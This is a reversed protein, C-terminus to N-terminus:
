HARPPSFRQDLPELASISVNLLPPIKDTVIVFEKLQVSEKLLIANIFGEGATYRPGACFIQPSLVM